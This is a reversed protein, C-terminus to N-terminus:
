FKEPNLYKGKIKFLFYMTKYIFAYIKQEAFNLFFVESRYNNIYLAFDIKDILKNYKHLAGTYICKAYSYNEFRYYFVDGFSKLQEHIPLKPFFQEPTIKNYVFECLADRAKLRIELDSSGQNEHVRPNIGIKGTCFINYLVVIELGKTVDQSYRNTEDFLGVKDFVSKHITFSCFGVGGPANFFDECSSLVRLGNTKFDATIFESKYNILLQDSNLVFKNEGQLFQYDNEIRNEALKDDHSLWIFYDGTMSKIGLNLASSVGGNEKNIYTLKNGFSLAIAETAGNDRSGDNIVILEINPYNQSLVSDIAERLYNSGNYVPIIVTFKPLKTEM